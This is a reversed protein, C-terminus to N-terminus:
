IILINMHFNKSEYHEKVTQDKLVVVVEQYIELVLLFFKDIFQGHNERGMIFFFIVLITDM